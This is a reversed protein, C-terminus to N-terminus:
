LGETCWYTVKRGNSFLGVFFSFRSVASASGRKQSRACIWENKSLYIGLFVPLQSISDVM